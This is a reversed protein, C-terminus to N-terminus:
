ARTEASDDAVTTRSSGELDALVRRMLDPDILVPAERFATMWRRVLARTENDLVWDGLAHQLIM